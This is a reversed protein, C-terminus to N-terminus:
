AEWAERPFRQVRVWRSVERAIRGPVFDEIEDVAPGSAIAYSALVLPMRMPGRLSRREVVIRKAPKGPQPVYLTERSASRTKM